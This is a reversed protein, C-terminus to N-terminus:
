LKLISWSFLLLRVIEMIHCCCNLLCVFNNWSCKKFLWCHYTSVNKKGLFLLNHVFTQSAYLVIFLFINYILYEKKNLSNFYLSHNTNLSLARDVCHWHLFMLSIYFLNKLISCIYLYIIMLYFVFWIFINQTLTYVMKISLYVYLM